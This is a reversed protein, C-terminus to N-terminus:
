HTLFFYRVQALLTGVKTLHHPHYNCCYYGRISLACAEVHSESPGVLYTSSQDGKCLHPFSYVSTSAVATWATHPPGTRSVERAWGGM